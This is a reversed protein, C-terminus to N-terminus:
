RLATSAPPAVPNGRSPSVISGSGPISTAHFLIVREPRGLRAVSCAPRGTPAPRLYITVCHYLCAAHFGCEPGLNPSPYSPRGSVPRRNEALGNFVPSRRDWNPAVRGSAPMAFPLTLPLTNRTGALPRPRPFQSPTGGHLHKIRSNCGDRHHRRRGHGFRGFGGGVFPSLLLTVVPNLAILVDLQELFSPAGPNGLFRLHVIDLVDRGLDRLDHECGIRLEEPKNYPAWSKDARRTAGLKSAIVLGKPYPALAERILARGMRGAAGAILVRTVAM